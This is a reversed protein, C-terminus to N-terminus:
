ELPSLKSLLAKFLESFYYNKGYEPHCPDYELRNGLKGSFHCCYRLATCRSYQETSCPTKGSWAQAFGRSFKPSVTKGSPKAFTWLKAPLGPLLSSSGHRVGIEDYKDRECIGDYACYITHLWICIPCNITSKRLICYIISVLVINRRSCLLMLHYVNDELSLDALAGSYHSSKLM